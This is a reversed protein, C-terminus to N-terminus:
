ELYSLFDLILLARIVNEMKGYEISEGHMIKHRSFTPLNKLEDGHYATQFLVNLLLFNSCESIMEFDTDISKYAENLDLIEGSPSQWKNRKKQIKKHFKFGHKEIFDMLIGDIQAILAPLVVNSPNYGPKINKLTLVCDNIIEMRPRFISNDNWEKVMTELTSFNNQSFHNIFVQNIKSEVDVGANQIEIIEGYCEDPLSFSYFWNYDKLIKNLSDITTRFRKLSLQAKQTVKVFTDFISPNSQFWSQFFITQPIAIKQLIETIATGSPFGSLRMIKSFEDFKEDNYKKIADRFESFVQEDVPEGFFKKLNMNKDVIQRIINILETDPISLFEDESIKPEVILHFALRQAFEIDNISEKSLSAVKSYEKFSFDRFDLDGFKESTLYVHFPKRSSKIITETKSM